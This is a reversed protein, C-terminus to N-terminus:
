NVVSVAADRDRVALAEFRGGALAVLDRFSFISSEKAEHAILARGLCEVYSCWGRMQGPSEHTVNQAFHLTPAELGVLQASGRVHQGVLDCSIRELFHRVSVIPEGVMHFIDLGLLACPAGQGTLLSRASPRLSWRSILRAREFSVGNKASSIPMSAARGWFSM